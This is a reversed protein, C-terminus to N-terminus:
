METTQESFGGSRGAGVLTESVKATCALCQKAWAAGDYSAAPNYIRGQHDRCFVKGCRHCRGVALADCIIIECTRAV